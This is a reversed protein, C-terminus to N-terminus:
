QQTTNGKYFSDWFNRVRTAFSVHVLCISRQQALGQGHDFPHPHPFYLGDRRRIGLM